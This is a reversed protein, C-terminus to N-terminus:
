ALPQVELIHHGVKLLPPIFPGRVHSDILFTFSYSTLPRPLVRPPDDDHPGGSGHHQQGKQRREKHQPGDHQPGLDQTLARGYACWASDGGGGSDEKVSGKAAPLEFLQAHASLNEHPLDQLDM